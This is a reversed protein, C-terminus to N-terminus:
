GITTICFLRSAIVLPPSAGTVGSTKLLDPLSNAGSAVDALHPDYLIYDTGAYYSIMAPIIALSWLLATVTLALLSLRGYREWLRRLSASYGWILIAPAPFASVFALTLKAAPALAMFIGLYVATSRRPHRAFRWGFWVTAAAILGAFPDALAMREFFFAFPVLTYFAAAILGAYEGALTRAILFVLAVTLLASLAVSIRGLFLASHPQTLDFVGPLFYFLFKGHSEQAPHTNFHYISTARAIHKGEDVFVPLATINHARIWLALWFLVVM